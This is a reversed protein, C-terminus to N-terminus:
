KGELLVLKGGPDPDVTYQNQVGAALNPDRLIAEWDATTLLAYNFNGAALTTGIKGPEFGIQFDKQSTRANFFINFMASVENRDNTLMQYQSNLDNSVFFKINGPQIQDHYTIFPAYVQNFYDKTFPVRYLYKQNYSWPTILLAIICFLPIAVNVWNVRRVVLIFGLLLCLLLPQYISETFKGFDWKLSAVYNQSFVYTILVLGLAGAVLLSMIIKERASRPPELRLWQPALIAIVPLAPFYFREIFGWPIKLMNLTMFFALLLPFLWILKISPSEERGYNTIGSVIYLLFPVLIDALLFTTFYSVPEKRFGGTYAYNEFVAAFSSPSISFFPARLFIADLLIFLGVASFFGILFPKILDRINHFEFKGDPNFLLGLLFVNAFLTTEKTKFSLFVVAGMVIVLWRHIRGSRLHFLYISLFITVMCMATIDASTVGCYLSIFHYSFYFGVALLGHLPRSHKFFSRANWYVLLGTLAVLFGWFIRTGLLPTPALNMFMKQLYVHFYRNAYSPVQYNNLGIDVYLLEDSYVPGSGLAAFIIWVVLAALGSLIMEPTIKKLFNKLAM